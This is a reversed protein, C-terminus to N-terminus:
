LSLGTPERCPVCGPNFKSPGEFCCISDAQGGAPPFPLARLFDTKNESWHSLAYVNSHFVRRPRCEDSPGTMVGSPYGAGKTDCELTMM